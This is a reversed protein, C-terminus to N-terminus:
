SAMTPRGQLCRHKQMFPTCYEFDCEKGRSLLAIKQNLTIALRVTIAKAGHSMLFFAAQLIIMLTRSVVYFSMELQLQANPM